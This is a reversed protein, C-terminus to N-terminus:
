ERYGLNYIYYQDPKGTETKSFVWIFSKQDMQMIDSRRWTYIKRRKQTFPNFGTFSTAAYVKEGYKVNKLYFGNKHGEVPELIWKEQKKDSFLTFRGMTVNRREEKAAREAHIFWKKYLVYM